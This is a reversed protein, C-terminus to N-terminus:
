LHLLDKTIECLKELFRACFVGVKHTFFRMKTLNTLEQCELWFNASM